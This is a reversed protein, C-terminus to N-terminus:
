LNTWVRPPRVSHIASGALPSRSGSPCPPNLETSRKPACAASCDARPTRPSPRMSAAAIRCSARVGIPAHVIASPLTRNRMRVSACSTSRTRTAASPTSQISREGSGVRPDNVHHDPQRAAGRPVGYVKRRLSPVMVTRSGMVYASAGAGAKVVGSHALCAIQYWTKGSRKRLPSGDFSGCGTRGQRLEHYSGLSHSPFSPWVKKLWKTNERLYPPSRCPSRQASGYRFVSPIM